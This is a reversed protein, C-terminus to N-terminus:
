EAHTCAGDQPVGRVQRGPWAQAAASTSGASAWSAICLRHGSLKWGTLFCGRIGGRVPCANHRERVGRAPGAPLGALWPLALESTPSGPESPKHSRVHPHLCLIPHPFPEPPWAMQRKYNRGSVLVDKKMEQKPRSCGQTPCLRATSTHRQYTGYGKRAGSWSGALSRPQKNPGLGSDLPACKSSPSRTGHLLPGM